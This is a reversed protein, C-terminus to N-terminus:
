EQGPRTALSEGELDTGNDWGKGKGGWDLECPTQKLLKDTNLKQLMRSTNTPVAKKECGHKM